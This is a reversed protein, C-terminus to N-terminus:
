PCFRVFILAVFVVLCAFLFSFFRGRRMERVVGSNRSKLLPLSARLLLRHDSDLAGDNADGLGAFVSGADAGTSPLPAGVEV